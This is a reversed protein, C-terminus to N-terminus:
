SRIGHMANVVRYCHQLFLEAIAGESENFHIAGVRMAAVYSSSVIDGELRDALRSPIKYPIIVAPRQNLDYYALEPTTSYVVGNCVAQHWMSQTARGPPSMLVERSMDDMIMSLIHDSPVCAPQSPVSTKPVDKVTNEQTLAINLIRNYGAGHTKAAISLFGCTGYLVQTDFLPSKVPHETRQALAGCFANLEKSYARLYNRPLMNPSKLIVSAVVTSM